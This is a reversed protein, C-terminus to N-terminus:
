KMKVMKASRKKPTLTKNIKKVLEKYRNVSFSLNMFGRSAFVIKINKRNGLFFIDPHLVVKDYRLNKLVGTYLMEKIYKKVTIESMDNDRCCNSYFESTLFIENTNFRLYSVMYVILWLHRKMKALYMANDTSGMYFRVISTENNKM